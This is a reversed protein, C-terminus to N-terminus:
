AAKLLYGEIPIERQPHNVRLAFDYCGQCFFIGFAFVWLHCTEYGCCFCRQKKPQETIPIDPHMIHTNVWMVIPSKNQGDVLGVFEFFPNMQASVLQAIM